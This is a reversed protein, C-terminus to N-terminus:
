FKPTGSDLDWSSCLVNRMRSVGRDNLNKRVEKKGEGKSKIAKEGFKLSLELPLLSHSLKCRRRGCLHNQYSELIYMLVAINIVM